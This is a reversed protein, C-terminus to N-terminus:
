PIFVEMANSPAGYIRKGDKVYYARLAMVIRGKKVGDLSCKVKKNNVPASKWKTYFGLKNQCLIEIHSAKKVNNWSITLILEGDDKDLKLKMKPTGPKGIIKKSKVKSKASLRNGKFAAVKYYYTKGTKLKSHICSTGKLSGILKYNGNRSTARYVLYGEAGSVKKWSLKVSNASSLKVKLKPTKLKAQSHTTAMAQMKFPLSALPQCVIATLLFVTLWRKWKQSTKRKKM